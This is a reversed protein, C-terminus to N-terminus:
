RNRDPLDDRGARLCDAHRGHAHAPRYRVRHASPLRFIPRVATKSRMGLLGVVLPATTVFVLYFRVYWLGLLSVLGIGIHLASVRQMVRLASGLAGVVLCVVLGDKYTDSTYYLFTPGFYFLAGTRAATRPSAGFQVALHYLNFSTLGAVFAILATCGLQSPEGGNLYIISAFINAPLATPGLDPLEKATFFTVGTVRWLRAIYVALEEYVLSDGGREHSFLQIERVFIQICLRLVYGGLILGLMTLGGKRDGTRIIIWLLLGFLLACLVGIM